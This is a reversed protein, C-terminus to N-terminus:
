RNIEEIIKRAFYRAKRDAELVDELCTIEQKETEECVRMVIEGIDTFGIRRDLFAAVAVENAGNVSAPINGGRSIAKM